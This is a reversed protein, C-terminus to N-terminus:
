GLIRCALGARILKSGYLVDFDIATQKFQRLTEVRLTLGTISDVAQAVEEGSTGTDLPRTAFAFAARHFALNVVHTGQFTIVANASAIAALPPDISITSATLASVFTVTSTQVVYTETNGAITFVDGILITGIGASNQNKIDLASAGAATTSAVAGSTGTATGATHTPINQDMFFDLGYKRGLEGEIKVNRDGTTEFNSFGTLQLAQSEATPDLVVRRMNDIPALHQNLVKRAETATAVTSFPNVGSTGVFGHVGKYQALVHSDMSNALSRVAESWQPAYFNPNVEIESREKDTLFFDTHKWQDLPLQVVQPTAGTASTYTPAATVNAATQTVPLPIDVTTGPRRAEGMYDLNVLRPMVAQERLALLSKSLVKPLINTLTNGAM